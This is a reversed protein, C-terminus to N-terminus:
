KAPPQSKSGQSLYKMQLNRGILAELQSRHPLAKKMEPVLYNLDHSKATLERAKQDFIKLYAQLDAVDKKISVPGHGPIIKEVDMTQIYDLVKLWGQIDANGLFPHYDSFLIDGTFLVKEKPLYVLINGTTHTPGLYLLEVRQNGLFLTVKEKFTLTPYALRTGKLDKESLGSQKAYQLMGAGAKEMNEKDNEQAIIVAGLKAFESNGLTHDLHYHTNVLFKIPKSSIKRIYKIFRRAERASMLSDVAVLFDKGIIIGANAGFSNQAKAGKVDAYSYVSDSIKVLGAAAFAAQQCVLFLGLALGLITLKKM